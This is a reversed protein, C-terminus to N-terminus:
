ESPICDSDVHGQPVGGFNILEFIETELELSGVRAEAFPLNHGKFKRQGVLSLGQYSVFEKRSAVHESKFWAAPVTLLGDIFMLVTTIRQKGDVVAIRFDGGWEDAHIRHNVVLSPVPVGMLLSRIFNRRRITGWVDGRQYPPDLFLGHEDKRWHMLVEIPRNTNNLRIEQLSMIM